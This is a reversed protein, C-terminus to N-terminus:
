GRAPARAVDRQTVDAEVVGPQEGLRRGLDALRTLVVALPHVAEVAHRELRPLVVQGEGAPGLSPARGGASRSRPGASRSGTSGAARSRVEERHVVVQPAPVGVPEPARPRHAGLVRDDAPQPRAAVPARVHEVPQDGEVVAGPEDVPDVPELAPRLALPHDLVDLHRDLPELLEEVPEVPLDPHPRHPQARQDRGAGHGALGPRAVREPRPRRVDVDPEPAGDVDPRVGGVRREVPGDLGLHVLEVPM